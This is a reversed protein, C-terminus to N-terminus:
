ATTVIHGNISYFCAKELFFVRFRVSWIMLSIGTCQGRRNLSSLHRCTNCSCYFLRSTSSASFRIVGCSTVSTTKACPASTDSGKADGASWCRRHGSTKINRDEAEVQHSPLCFRGGDFSPCTKNQAFSLLLFIKLSFILGLNKGCM